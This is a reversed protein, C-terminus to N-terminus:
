NPNYSGREDRERDRELMAEVSTGDYDESAYARSNASEKYASNTRSIVKDTIVSKAHMVKSTISSGITQWEGFGSNKWDKVEIAMIGVLGIIYLIQVLFAVVLATVSGFGYNAVSMSIKLMLAYAYNCLCLCACGILYGEICRSEKHFLLKRFVVNIILLGLIFIMLLPKIFSTLWYVVLLLAAFVVGITGSQEYVYRSFSYSYYKYMDSHESVMFRMLDRTDVNIIEVANGHLCGFEKNYEIACQMAMVKLFVEDPVKGLVDKNNIVFNRAYEYVKDIRDRTINEGTIANPAIYWSSRRMQSLDSDDFGFNYVTRQAPLSYIHDLGLIDYGDELFEPSSLYPSVIDYTLVHGNSGVSWSYATIDRSINYENVNCVLQELFVYYPSVFSVVSTNDSGITIEREVIQNGSSDIGTIQGPVVGAIANGNADTAQNVQTRLTVTTHAGARVFHELTNSSPTFQIDSSDYIDQVDVYLGDGKMQVGPTLAIPNDKLSDRYLDSVTRSTNGFLVDPIINWWNVGVDSVKMYLETSTEPTTVSTIGIESGDYEKVYNLMMLRGSEEALLTKNANYYTWSILNPVLTFAVISMICTAIFRLVSKVGLSNKTADIYLSVGLAVVMVAFIIKFVYLMIYEVGSVFALNPMTVVSNGGLSNGNTGSVLTDVLEELKYAMYVGYKSINLNGDLGEYEYDIYEIPAGRLVEMILNTLTHSYMKQGKQFYADNFFLNQVVTSNKNLAEWQVIGTLNGSTIESTRLVLEGGSIWFYGGANEKVVDGVDTWNQPGSSVANFDQGILWEYVDENFDETTIHNGNNYYESWGITYPTWNTGCLTANCAAPIIVLGSETLINGFIDVFIPADLDLTSASDNKMQEELNALMYYNYVSRWNSSNTGPTSCIAKSSKFVANDAVIAKLCENYLDDNRYVASVVAYPVKISYEYSDLVSEINKQSDGLIEANTLLYQDYTAAIWGAEEQSQGLQTVNVKLTESYYSDAGTKLIKGTDLDMMGSVANSLKDFGTATDAANNTNRIATYDLRSIVTDIKNANYFNDDVTLIIDRDYNLLDSLTAPRTGSRTGSSFQNVIASNDTNIMLAKRYFGYRYFFDAVWESDNLYLVSSADYVNTEMPVYLASLAFGKVWQDTMKKGNLNFFNGLPEDISRTGNPSTRYLVGAADLAEFFGRHQKYFERYLKITESWDSEGIDLFECMHELAIVSRLLGIQEDSWSASVSDLTAAEFNDMGATDQLWKFMEDETESSFFGKLTDLDIEANQGADSWAAVSFAYDVNYLLRVLRNWSETPELMIDYQSSGIGFLGIRKPMRSLWSDSIEDYTYLETMFAELEANYLTYVSEVSANSGPTSYLSTAVMYEAMVDCIPMLNTVLGVPHYHGDVYENLHGQIKDVDVKKMVEDHYEFTGVISLGLVEYQRVAEAHRSRIEDIKSNYVSALISKQYPTLGQWLEGIYVISSDASEVGSYSFSNTAKLVVNGSGSLQFLGNPNGGEAICHVNSELYTSVIDFADSRSYMSYTESDANNFRDKIKSDNIAADLADGYVKCFDAWFNLGKERFKGEWEHMGINTESGYHTAIMSSIKILIQNIADSDLTDGDVLTITDKGDSGLALFTDNNVQSLECTSVMLNTNAQPCGYQNDVASAGWYVAFGADAVYTYASWLDEGSEDKGSSYLVALDDVMKLRDYYPGVEGSNMMSDILDPPVIKDIVEPISIRLQQTISDRVDIGNLADAYKNNVTDWRAVWMNSLRDSSLVMIYLNDDQTEVASAFVMYYYYKMTCQDFECGVYMIFDNLTNAVCEYMKITCKDHVCKNEKFSDITRNLADKQSEGDRLIVGTYTGIHMQYNLNISERKLEGTNPDYEKEAVGASAIKLLNNIFNDQVSGDEWVQAAIRNNFVSEPLKHWDFDHGWTTDYIPTLPKEPDCMAYDGVSDYGRCLETCEEFVDRNLPVTCVAGTPSDAAEVVLPPTVSVVLSTLLILSVIRKFKGKMTLWGKLTFITNIIVHPPNFM